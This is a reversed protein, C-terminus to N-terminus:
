NFLHKPWMTDKTQYQTNTSFLVSIFPWKDSVRFGISNIAVLDFNCKRIGNQKRIMGHKCVEAANIAFCTSGLLCFDNFEAQHTTGQIITYLHKISFSLPTNYYQCHHTWTLLFTIVLIHLLRLQNINMSINGEM